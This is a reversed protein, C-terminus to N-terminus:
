RCITHLIDSVVNMVSSVCDCKSTAELHFTYQNVGADAMEDVWQVCLSVCVHVVYIMGLLYTDSM